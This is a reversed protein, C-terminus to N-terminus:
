VGELIEHVSVGPKVRHVVSESEGIAMVLELGGLEAVHGEL